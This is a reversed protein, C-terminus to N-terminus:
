ICTQLTNRRTLPGLCSLLRPLCEAVTSRIYIEACRLKFFDVWATCAKNLGEDRYAKSQKQ